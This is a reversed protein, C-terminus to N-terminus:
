GPGSVLAAAGGLLLAAAGLAPMAAVRLDDVKVIWIAGMFAIPM